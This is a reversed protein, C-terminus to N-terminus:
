QISERLCEVSCFHEGTLVEIGIGDEKYIESNGEIYYMMASAVIVKDKKKLMRKCKDCLIVKM